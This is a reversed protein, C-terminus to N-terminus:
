CTASRVTIAAWVPSSQSRMGRTTPIAGLCGSCNSHLKARLRPGDSIRGSGTAGLEFNSLQTATELAEEVSRASLALRSCTAGGLHSWYAQHRCFWRAWLFPHRCSWRADCVRARSADSVSGRQPSTAWGPCGGSRWCEALAARRPWALDNGWWHSRAVFVVLELACQRARGGCPILARHIRAPFRRGRRARPRAVFTRNVGCLGTTPDTECGTESCNAQRAVAACPLRMRGLSHRWGARSASRATSVYCAFFDVGGDAAFWPRSGGGGHSCHQASSSTSVCPCGSQSVRLSDPASLTLWPSM